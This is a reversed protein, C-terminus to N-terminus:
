VNVVGEKQLKHKIALNAYIREIASGRELSSNVVTNNDDLDVWFSVWQKKLVVRTIKSIENRPLSNAKINRYM